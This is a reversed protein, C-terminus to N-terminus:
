YRRKLIGFTCGSCTILISNRTKIHDIIKQDLPSLKVKRKKQLTELADMGYNQIEVNWSKIWDRFIEVNDKNDFKYGNYSQIKEIKPAISCGYGYAVDNALDNVFDRFILSSEYFKNHELIAESVEKEDLFNILIGRYLEHAIIGVIKGNKKVEIMNYRGSKEVILSYNKISIGFDIVRESNEEWNLKRINEIHIFKKAVLSDVNYSQFDKLYTFFEIDADSNSSKTNSISTTIILLFIYFHKM